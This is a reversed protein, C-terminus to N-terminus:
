GTAAEVRELFPLQGKLVKRRAEELTFWEARDVEPFERMLGSGRPWELTFTNSVVRTVDFAGASAELAWALVRKGGAQQVEGLELPPGAPAPMGLEEEFERYAAALPEDHPGYEGKPVSWAGDDKRVWFPGGPHVLLVELAGAASRRYVLLGASTAGM